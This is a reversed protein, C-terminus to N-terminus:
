NVQGTACKWRGMVYGMEGSKEWNRKLYRWLIAVGWCVVPLSLVCHPSFNDRGDEKDEFLDPFIHSIFFLYGLRGTM